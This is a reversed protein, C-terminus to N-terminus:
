DAQKVYEPFDDSVIQDHIIGKSWTKWCKELFFHRDLGATRVVQDRIYEFRITKPQLHLHDSVESRIYPELRMKNPASQSQNVQRTRAENNAQITTRATSVSSTQSRVKYGSLEELSSPEFDMADTRSVGLLRSPEIDAPATRSSAQFRSPGVSTPTKVSPRKIRSPGFKMPDAFPRITDAVLFDGTELRQMQASALISRGGDITVRERIRVRVFANTLPQVSNDQVDLLASPCFILAEGTQLGVIMEFLDKNLHDDGSRAGALHARLVGFWAPSNFRHVISVNCLDLLRPALTPEQTAVIIRTALHRQQRVISIVQGTLKEAEGTKTLFKHAEDLAVIRGCDGRNEMFISLCISFLACADNENVFPCSLDVITVTAQASNFMNSLRSQSSETQERHALFSELLSLRLSLPGNQRNSFGQAELRDKFQLYDLSSNVTNTMSMDRLVKFLIEMYLPVHGEGNVAMLTMMRSVTLHHEQLYLPIVEPRPAGRPLGPLNRYLKRMATFNSPSVLVRVPIGSSCLYAAECLQTSEPGTFTDYHFVLAALPNPNNGAASSRLLANELLCSLTHSKGAGQSGCIFTSWPANMNAFVLNEEVSLTACADLYRSNYTAERVGLLGYQRFLGDSSGLDRTQNEVTTRVHNTFLPTTTIEEIQGQRPVGEEQKSQRVLQLFNRVENDSNRGDAEEIPLQPKQDEELSSPESNTPSLINPRMNM